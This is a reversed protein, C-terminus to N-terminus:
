YTKITSAIKELDRILNERGGDCVVKGEDTFIVCPDNVRLLRLAGSNVM